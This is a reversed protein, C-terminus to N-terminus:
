RVTRELTEELANKRTKMRAEDNIEEGRRRGAPDNSNKSGSLSLSLSLSTQVYSFSLDANDEDVKTDHLFEYSAANTFHACGSSSGILSVSNMSPRYRDSRGDLVSSVIGARLGFPQVCYFLLFANEITKAFIASSLSLSLPDFAIRQAM